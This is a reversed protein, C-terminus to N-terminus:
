VTCSSVDMVDLIISDWLRMNYVTQLFLGKGINSGLRTPPYVVRDDRPQHDVREWSCVVMVNTM